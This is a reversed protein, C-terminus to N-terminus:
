ISITRHLPIQSERHDYIDRIIEDTTRSDEWVGFNKTFNEPTDEYPLTEEAITKGAERARVAELLVDFEDESLENVYDVIDRKYTIM